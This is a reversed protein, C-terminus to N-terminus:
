ARCPRTRPDSTSRWGGPIASMLLSTEARTAAAKAAKRVAAMEMARAILGPLLNFQALERQEPDRTELHDFHM